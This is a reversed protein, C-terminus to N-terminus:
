PPPCTADVQQTMREAVRAQYKEPSNIWFGAFQDSSLVGEMARQGRECHIEAGVWMRHRSDLPGHVRCQGLERYIGQVIPRFADAPFSAVFAPAFLQAHREPSFDKGLDLAANVKEEFSAPLVREREREPLVKADHLRSLLKRVSEDLEAEDRIRWPL